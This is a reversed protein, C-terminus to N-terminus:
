SALVERVVADDVPTGYGRDAGAMEGIRAPLAYQVRGGRAKKDVQTLEIIRDAIQPKTAGTILTPLSMRRVADAIVRATGTVAIGIREAIASEVVMGTAVAWGHPSSYGDLAELAHGITHGFNLVKRLGNEREDRAVIDAKIEVSRRIIPVFESWRQPKRSLTEAFSGVREFYDADAVVGHKIVEAMGARIDQDHLTRLVTPDMIVAAPQHFVGVLNKGHKTDVGTKGGVSADVMALLTTPVQVLPIGRMYTAAVFGALDGVVGGGLAVITTDRGLRQELLQDTLASWTERTKLIEGPPISLLITDNRDRRRDISASVIRAYHEGVNRDTIVVVRNAPAVEHVMDGVTELAGEAITIPYPLLETAVVM